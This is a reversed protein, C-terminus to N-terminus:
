EEVRFVPTQWTMIKNVDNVNFRLYHKIYYDGDYSESCPLQKTITITAEGVNLAIDNSSSLNAIPNATDADVLEFLEVANAAGITDVRSTRTFTYTVEPCSSQTVNIIHSNDVNFYFTAPMLATGAQILLPTLVFGAIGFVLANTIRRTM